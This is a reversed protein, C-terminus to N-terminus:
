GSNKLADIYEGKPFYSFNLAKSAPGTLEFFSVRLTLWSLGNCDLENSEQAACKLLNQRQLCFLCDTVFSGCIDTLLRGM